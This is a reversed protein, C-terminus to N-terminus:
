KSVRIKDSINGLLESGFGVITGLTAGKVVVYWDFGSFLAIVLGIIIGISFGGWVANRRGWYFGLLVLAIIGFFTWLSLYSM